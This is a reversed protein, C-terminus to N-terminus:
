AKCTHAMSRAYQARICSDQRCVTIRSPCRRTEKASGGGGGGGSGLQVALTPKEGMVRIYLSGPLCKYGM